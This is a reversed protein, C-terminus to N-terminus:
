LSVAHKVRIFVGGGVVKEIASRAPAPFDVFGRNCLTCFCYAGEDSKELSYGQLELQFKM